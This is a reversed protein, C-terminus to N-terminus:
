EVGLVKLAYSYKIFKSLYSGDEYSSYGSVLYNGDYDIISTFYDDREDGYTLEKIKELDDDYKAIVGDHNFANANKEEKGRAIQCFSHIITSLFM